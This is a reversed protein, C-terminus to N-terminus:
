ISPTQFRFGRRVLEIDDVSECGYPRFELRLYQNQKLLPISQDMVVEDKIRRLYIKPLTILITMRGFIM